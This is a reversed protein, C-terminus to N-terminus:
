FKGFGSSISSIAQPAKCRVAHEGETGSVRTDGGSPAGREREQGRLRVFEGRPVTGAADMAVAAGPARRPGRGQVEHTAKPRRKVEHRPALTSVLPGREGSHVCRFGWRFARQAIESYFM